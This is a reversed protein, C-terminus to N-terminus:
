SRGKKLTRELLDQNLQTREEETLIGALRSKGRKLPKVLVIAWLSM